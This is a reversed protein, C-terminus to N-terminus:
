LAKVEKMGVSKGEGCWGRMAGGGHKEDLSRLAYHGEEEAEWGCM